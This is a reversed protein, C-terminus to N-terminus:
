ILDFAVQKKPYLPCTLRFQFVCVFGHVCFCAKLTFAAKSKRDPTGQKGTSKSRLIDSYDVPCLKLGRTLVM